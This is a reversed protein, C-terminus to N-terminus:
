SKGKTEQCIKAYKRMEQDAFTTSPLPLISSHLVIEVFFRKNKVGVMLQVHSSM